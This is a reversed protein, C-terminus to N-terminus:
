KNSKEFAPWRQFLREYHSGVKHANISLVRVLIANLQFCYTDVAKCPKNAM